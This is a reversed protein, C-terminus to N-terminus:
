RIRIRGNHDDLLLLSCIRAPGGAAEEPNGPDTHWTTEDVRFLYRHRGPPLEVLIEWIGDGDADDMLGVNAEGVSGDGRAWNNEPWDGALQVRRATPAWYRFRVQGEEVSPGPALSRSALYGCGSAVATWVVSAMLLWRVRRRDDM